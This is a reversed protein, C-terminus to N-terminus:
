AKTLESEALKAVITYHLVMWRAQEQRPLNRWSVDAVPHILKADDRPGPQFGLERAWQQFPKWCDEGVQMGNSVFKMVNRVAERMARRYGGSCRMWDIDLTHRGSDINREYAVFVPHVARAVQAISASDFGSFLERQHRENDAEARLPGRVPYWQVGTLERQHKLAADLKDALEEAARAQLARENSAKAEEVENRWQIRDSLQKIYPAKLSFTDLIRQGEEGPDAVVNVKAFRRRLEVRAARGIQYRDPLAALHRLKDDPINRTTWYTRNLTDHAYLMGDRLRYLVTGCGYHETAAPDVELSTGPAESIEPTGLTREVSRCGYHHPPDGPWSKFAVANQLRQFDSYRAFHMQLDRVHAVFIRFGDRDAEPLESWEGLSGLGSTKRRNNWRHYLLFAIGLRDRNSMMVHKVDRIIAKKDHDSVITNRYQGNYHVWTRQHANIAILNIVHEPYNKM